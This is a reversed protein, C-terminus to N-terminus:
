KSPWSTTSLFSPLYSHTKGSSNHPLVVCPFGIDPLFFLVIPPLVGFWRQVIIHDSFSLHADCDFVLMSCPVYIFRTWKSWSSGSLSCLDVKIKHRSQPVSNSLLTKNRFVFGRGWIHTQSLLGDEWEILHCIKEENDGYKQCGLVELNHGAIECKGKCSWHVLGDVKSVM